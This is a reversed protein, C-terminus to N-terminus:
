SHLRLRIGSADNIKKITVLARLESTIEDFYILEGGDEEVDFTNATKSKSPVPTVQSGDKKQTPRVVTVTQGSPVKIGKVTQVVVVAQITAPATAGATLLNVTKGVLEEQQADALTDYSTILGYGNALFRTLTGGNPDASGQVFDARSVYKNANNGSRGAPVTKLYAVPVNEWLIATGTTNAVPNEPLTYLDSIQQGYRVNALLARCMDDNWVTEYGPAPTPPIVEHLMNVDLKGGSYAGSTLKVQDLLIGDGDIYDIGDASLEPANNDTLEIRRVTSGNSVAAGKINITEWASARHIVGLEWLSQMPANRIFATSLHQNSATGTYAPNEVTEKDYNEGAVGATGTDYLNDSSNFPEKPNSCSNVKGAFAIKTGNDKMELSGVKSDAINGALASQLIPVCKWDSADAKFTTGQQNKTFNLNQRPDRVEMGSLYFTDWDKATTATVPKNTKDLEFVVEGTSEIASAPGRVFDVGPKTGTTSFLGAAELGLTVKKVTVKYSILERNKIVKDKNDATMKARLAVDDIQFEATKKQDKLDNVVVWYGDQFGASADNADKSVVSSFATDIDLSSNAKLTSNVDEIEETSDDEFTVKVKATVEIDYSLKNFWSKLEYDATADGYIDILETYFKPTLDFKISSAASSGFLPVFNELKVGLVFENIYPTKENGTYTPLNTNSWDAAAKDSTPISDEDCYDNLNAAIQRRRDETNTFSGRDKAIKRLYSIGSDSPSANDEPYFKLSAALLNDVAKNSNKITEDYSDTGKVFGKFRPYWKEAATNSIGEIPGLNFRHYPTAESMKTASNGTVYFVEPSANGSESFWRRLWVQRKPDNVTDVPDGIIKYIDTSFFEGFSSVIADSSSGPLTEGTDNDVSWEQRFAAARGIYLENIDKGIRQNWSSANKNAGEVLAKTLPNYVGKLVKDLSLSSMGTPLVQYAMRAIIGGENDRVYVWTSKSKSGDYKPLGTLFMDLKSKNEINLQDYTNLKDSDKTRETGDNTSYIVSFDTTANDQRLLAMLTIMIRNVASDLVVQAQNRAGLNVAIKQATLANAVFAVGLVSMLSLLGLAFLLAVGKEKNQRNM